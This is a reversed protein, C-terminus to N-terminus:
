RREEQQHQHIHANLSTNLGQIDTTLETRMEDIKDGLKNFGVELGNLMKDTNINTQKVVAMEIKLNETADRGEDLRRFITTHIKENSVRDEIRDRDQRDDRRSLLYGIVGFVLVVAAVSFEVIFEHEM